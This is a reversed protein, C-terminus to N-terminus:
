KRRERLFKFPNIVIELHLHTGTSMGTSGMGGIKEGQKVLQGEQILTESLHGYLSFLGDGHDIIVYGGMVPHGKWKGGNPPIYHEVIKGALIAYVPTGMEGVIDIGKHLSETGGGLPNVRIGTSSSVIIKQVPQSYSLPKLQERLNGVQKEKMVVLEELEIIRGNRDRIDTEVNARVGLGFILLVSFFIIVIEIKIM